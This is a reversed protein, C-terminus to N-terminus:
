QKIIIWGLGEVKEADAASARSRAVVAIQEIALPRQTPFLGTTDTAARQQVRLGFLM